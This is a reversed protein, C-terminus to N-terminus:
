AKKGFIELMLPLKHAKEFSICGNWGHKMIRLNRAQMKM